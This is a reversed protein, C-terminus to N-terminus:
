DLVTIQISVIHITQLRRQLWTEVPSSATVDSVANSASRLTPGFMSTFTGTPHIWDSASNTRGISM